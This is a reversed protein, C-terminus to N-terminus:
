VAVSLHLPLHFPSDAVSIYLPVSMASPEHSLNSPSIMRMCADGSTALLDLSAYKPPEGLSVTQVDLSTEVTLPIKMSGQSGLSVRLSM